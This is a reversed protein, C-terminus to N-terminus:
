KDFTCHERVPFYTLVGQGERLSVCVVLNNVNQDISSPMWIYKIDSRESPSVTISVATQYYCLHPLSQCHTLSSCLLCFNFLNFSPSTLSCYWTVIGFLKAARSFKSSLPPMLPAHSLILSFKL